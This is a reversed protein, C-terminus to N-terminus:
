VLVFVFVVRWAVFRVDVFALFSMAKAQDKKSPMLNRQAVEKALEGRSMKKERRLNESMLVLIASQWDPYKEAVYVIAADARDAEPIHGSVQKGQVSRM